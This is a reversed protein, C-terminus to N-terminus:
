NCHTIKISQGFIYGISHCYHSMICMTNKPRYQNVRATNQHRDRRGFMTLTSAARVTQVNIAHQKRQQGDKDDDDDCDDRKTHTHKPIQQWLRTTMTIARNTGLVEFRSQCIGNEFECQVVCVCVCVCFACRRLCDVIVYVFCDM